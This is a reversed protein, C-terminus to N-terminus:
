EEERTIIGHQRAEETNFYKDPGRLTRYWWKRNESTEEELIDLINSVIRKFELVGQEHEISKGEMSGSPAHMMFSANPSAKREDGALFIIFGSSMIKGMGYTRVTCPLSKILDYVAFADYIDGGYSNIHIDIPENSTDALKMLARIIVMTTDEDIDGTLHIRRKELDVGLELWTIVSDFKNDKKVLSM